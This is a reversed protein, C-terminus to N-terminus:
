RDQPTWSPSDQPGPTLPPTDAAEAQARTVELVRGCATCTDLYKSTRWVPIFFATMTRTRKTLEHEASTRCRECTYFRPALAELGTRFGLLILM